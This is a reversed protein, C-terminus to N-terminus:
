VAARPLVNDVRLGALDVHLIRATTGATKMASIAVPALSRATTPLGTTVPTCLTFTFGDTSYIFDARTCAANVFVGLWLWELNVPSPSSTATRTPTGNDIVDRSWEAASGNWRLNWAIANQHTTTAIDSFGTIGEYTETGDPLATFSRVRAINMACGNGFKFTAGAGAINPRSSASTSTSVGAVGPNTANGSYGFSTTGSNTAATYASNAGGIFDDFSAFGMAKGRVPWSLVRWSTSTSDYYLSICDSPFLFAPFGEPLKIRNAAASATSSCELWLLYDTSANVITKVCGDALGTADLGTFGTSGAGNWRLVSCTAWGTPAYDNQKTTVTSAIVGTGSQGYLEDFNDNVKGFATRAPDGTGDNATTGINITQQTV